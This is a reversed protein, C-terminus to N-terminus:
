VDIPGLLHLVKSAVLLCGSCVVFTWDRYGEGGNGRFSVTLGTVVFFNLPIKLLAYVRARVGDEILKGKLLGISPWYVGACAEFVLFSWFTLNEKRWVVPVLLSSSALALATPLIRTPSTPKSSSAFLGFLLSGIMMAAM